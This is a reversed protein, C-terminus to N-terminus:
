EMESRLDKLERRFVAGVRLKAMYVQPATVNLLRKVEPLRVNQLAYLDFMQFQLPAVAARTRAAAESLLYREWEEDWAADPWTAFDAAASDMGDVDLLVTQKRKRFQDAVRRQTIRALWGKFSGKSPDYHFEPLQKALSLMTEQLADDAEAETLGARLAIRRILPQYRGFFERWSQENGPDRVRSLLSARTRPSESPSAVSMTEAKKPM